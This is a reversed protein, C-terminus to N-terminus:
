VVAAVPYDGIGVIGPFNKRVLQKFRVGYSTSELSGLAGTEKSGASRQLELSSIKLTTFGLLQAETSTGLGDLTMTHAAFLMIAIQYDAEPWTTDVRGTGEAIASTVVADDVAAFAPFRAKLIAATPVVYAL